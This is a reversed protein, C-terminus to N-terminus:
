GANQSALARSIIYDSFLKINIDFRHFNQTKHNSTHLSNAPESLLSVCSFLITRRVNMM